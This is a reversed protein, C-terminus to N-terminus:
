GYFSIKSLGLFFISAQFMISSSIMIIFSFFGVCFSFCTIRYSTLTMSSEEMISRNRQSSENNYDSM